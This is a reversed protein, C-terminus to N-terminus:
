ARVSLYSFAISYSVTATHEDSADCYKRVPMACHPIMLWGLRCFVGIVREVYLCLVLIESFLVNDIEEEGKLREDERPGRCGLGIEM